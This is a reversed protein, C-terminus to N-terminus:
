DRLWEVTATGYKVSIIATENYQIQADVKTGSLIKKDPSVLFRWQPPNTQQVAQQAIADPLNLFQRPQLSGKQTVLLYGNDIKLELSVSVGSSFVAMGRGGRLIMVRDLGPEGKWSGALSDVTEVYGFEAVPESQPATSAIQELPVSFDFLNFVLLRSDLLIKNISGYVKSIIRTFQDKRGKLILELKLGEPVEELVGFFIYDIATDAPFDAPVPEKRLDFITYTKLEKIFSFVLNDVTQATQEPIAPAQLQYVAVGPIASLMAPLSILLLLAIYAAKKRGHKM